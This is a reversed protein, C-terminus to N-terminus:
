MELLSVSSCWSYSFFSYYYSLGSFVDCQKPQSRYKLLFFFHQRCIGWHTKEHVCLIFFVSQLSEKMQTTIWFLWHERISLSHVPSVTKLPVAVTCSQKIMDTKASMDRILYFREHFWLREPEGNCGEDKLNCSLLISAKKQCIEETIKINIFYFM